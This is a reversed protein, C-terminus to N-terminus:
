LASTPISSETPVVLKSHVAKTGEDNETTKFENESDSKRNYMDTLADFFQKHYREWTYQKAVTASKEGREKLLTRNHYYKEIAEVWANADGVPLVMDPNVQEVADKAGTNESVLVPTGCAMAETVVQAWSDIYSPFIFLDLSHHIEVLKEQAVFPIYRCNPLNLNSVAFDDVPGLVTLEVDLGRLRLAKFVEVVLPLGKRLSLTGVFYLQFVGETNYSKKPQLFAPNLGLELNYIRDALFGAQIMTSKAFQSVVTVYDTYEYAAQKLDSVYKVKELDTYSGATVLVPDQFSHHVSCLDLLTIKGRKKAEKFSLLNANEFGLFIDFDAKKLYNAVTKDFLKYSFRVRNYESKIFQTWLFVMPFHTIKDTLEAAFQRKRFKDKLKKPLYPFFIDKNAAYSTFHKALVNYKLLGLLVNNTHQKGEHASIIKM